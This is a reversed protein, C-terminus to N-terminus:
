LWALHQPLALGALQLPSGAQMSKVYIGTSTHEVLCHLLLLVRCTLTDPLCAQQEHM